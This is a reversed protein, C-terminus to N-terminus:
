SKTFRTAMLNERVSRRLVKGIQSRPLEDLIAIARPMAYHSVKDSAWRRVADLDISAGPELVLAAVASEGHTPHPIGVVAVDSVGPMSRVADEVQSPYVNYGGSIILEKRRDALVHFGEADRRVLDGTRLWGGPLLVHETEEPHGWYGAFVQPGRAILEGVEGIEVDTGPDEPDVVRVETGPYPLGLSGPRRSPGVPNGLLVPSAETMGYGEIILGGTVREWHSAVEAPLSMAGSIAYRTGSMDIGREEAAAALKGFIPPVGILLTAPRRRTAALMMDVDFKPMIVQTAAIKVASAMSLGMGFAHFYPLVAYFTEQGDQLDGVWMVNQHVNAVVNAHTLTVAKPTGTTGGTHLLVATDQPTPAPHDRPLRPATRTVREWSGIGSPVSARMSARQARAARIPLRLLFRSRRPLAATLNVALVTLDDPAEDPWLTAVSHEWAVVVRAGHAELQARLELAPALPNHEAVIAGIRLTAYFAVVHQPCNPMILAVRDGARVGARLLAAAARDVQEGLQAYTTTASLFDMAVVTGHAEVADLLLDTVTEEPIEIDPGRLVSPSDSM